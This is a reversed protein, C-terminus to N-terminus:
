DVMEGCTLDFSTAAARGLRVALAPEGPYDAAGCRREPAAVTSATASTPGGIGDVVRAKTLQVEAGLGAFLPIGDGPLVPVVHLQVEDVLGAALCQRAIDAGILGDLSIAMDLLLGV